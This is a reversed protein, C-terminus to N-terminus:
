MRKSWKVEVASLRNGFYLRDFHAAMARIDPCPDALDAGALRGGHGRQLEGQRQQVGEGQLQVALLRDAEERELKDALRQLADDM